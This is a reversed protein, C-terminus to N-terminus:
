STFAARRRATRRLPSRTRDYTPKASWGISCSTWASGVKALEGESAEVLELGYRSKSSRALLRLVTMEVGSPRPPDNKASLRM